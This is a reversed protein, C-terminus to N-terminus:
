TLRERVVEGAIILCNSPLAGRGYRALSM